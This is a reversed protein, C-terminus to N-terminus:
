PSSPQFELCELSEQLEEKSFHPSTIKGVFKEYNRAYTERTHNLRAYEWTNRAMLRLEKSSLGSLTQISNKIEDHSCERLIVGFDPVDFGSERSVIPILGAQLCTAVAGSQGEACSPYILGICSDTIKLFEPSSIDVWGVTHINPTSYLENYYVSEFDKEGVIPGCVTLHYDPMNAFVELVLDLGKHIFGESGFWLFHKRYADYDKEEPLPYVTIAPVSFPIIRKDAYAYTSITHDNGLITAFDCYEIAWNFEVLKMELSRLTIGRRKQLALSRSYVATNNFLWHSTDLHVIKLCDESLLESIRQLNTRASVFFAYEKKPVFTKDRYDIVDVSYGFSVFTKAILLSEWDHTHTNSVLAEDKLLFPEIIYSLLVNGKSINEPKLTIVKGENFRPRYRKIEIGFTKFFQKVIQKIM